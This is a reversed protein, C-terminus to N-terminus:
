RGTVTGAVRSATAAWNVVQISLTMMAWVYWAVIEHIKLLSAFTTFFVIM